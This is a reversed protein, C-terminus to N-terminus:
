RDEMTLRLIIWTSSRCSLFYGNRLDQYNYMTGFHFSYSFGQPHFFASDKLALNPLVTSNLTSKRRWESALKDPGHFPIYTSHLSQPNGNHEKLLLVHLACTPQGSNSTQHSPSSYLNSLYICNLQVRTLTQTAWLITFQVGSPKSGLTLKQESTSILAIIGGAENTDTFKQKQKLGEWRM